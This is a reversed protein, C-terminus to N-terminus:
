CIRIGFLKVANIIKYKCDSANCLVNKLNDINLILQFEGFVASNM